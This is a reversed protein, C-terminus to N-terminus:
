EKRMGRVIWLPDWGEPNDEEVLVIAEIDEFLRGPGVSKEASSASDQSNAQSNVSASQGSSAERLRKLASAVAKINKQDTSNYATGAFYFYSAVLHLRDETSLNLWPRVVQRVIM